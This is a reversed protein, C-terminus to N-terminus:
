VPGEVEGRIKEVAAYYRSKVTGAPLGVAQAIQPFTEEAFLRLRLIQQTVADLAAIRELVAGATEKQELRDALTAGLEPLDENIPQTMGGMRCARSRFYDAARRSAIRYLWTRFAGKRSEFGGASRLVSVFIEQTLDMATQRDLTQRYAFAYMERYYKEVLENAARRDNWRSIRWVLVADADAKM